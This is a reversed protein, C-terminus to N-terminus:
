WVERIKLKNPPTKKEFEYKHPGTGQGKPEKAKWETANKCWRRLRSRYNVKRLKKSIDHKIQGSQGINDMLWTKWARIEEILDLQPFQQQLDELFARDTIEDYPYGPIKSVEDLEEQICM